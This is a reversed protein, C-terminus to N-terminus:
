RPNDPNPNPLRHRRMLCIALLVGGLLFVSNPEPVASVGILVYDTGAVLTTGNSPLLLVSIQDSSATFTGGGVFPDLDFDTTDLTATFLASSFTDTDPFQLAAPNYFGPGLDGLDVTQSSLGSFWELSSNLFTVTSIVPFGPPLDNGGSTPDGTLNGITFGNVGPFGPAGPILNDFSIYGLDEVDAWGITPLLILALAIPFLGVGVRM